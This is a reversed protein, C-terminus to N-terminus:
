LYFLGYLEEIGKYLKILEKVRIPLGYFPGLEKFEVRNQACTTELTASNDFIKSYTLEKSANELFARKLTTGFTANISTNTLIDDTITQNPINPSKETQSNFLVDLVQSLYENKNEVDAGMISISHGVQDFFQEIEQRNSEHFISELRDIISTQNTNSKSHMTSHKKDNEIIANELQNLVQSCQFFQSSM